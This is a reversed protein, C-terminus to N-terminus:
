DVEILDHREFKGINIRNKLENMNEDSWFPDLELKGGYKISNILIKMCEVVSMGTKAKFEELDNDDIELNINKTM